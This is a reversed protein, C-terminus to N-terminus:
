WSHRERKKRVSKERRRATARHTLIETQKEM